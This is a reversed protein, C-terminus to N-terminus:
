DNLESLGPGECYVVLEFENKLLMPHFLGGTKKEKKRFDTLSPHVDCYM